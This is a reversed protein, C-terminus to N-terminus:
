LEGGYPLQLLVSQSCPKSINACNEDVSRFRLSQPQLFTERDFFWNIWYESSTDVLLLQQHHYFALILEYKSIKCFSSLYAEFHKLHIKVVSLWLLVSCTIVMQLITVPISLDCMPIFLKHFSTSASNAKAMFLPRLFNNVNGILFAIRSGLQTRGETAKVIQIFAM